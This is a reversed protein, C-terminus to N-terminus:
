ATPGIALWTVWVNKDGTTGNARAAHFAFGTALGGDTSIRYQIVKPVDSTGGVVAQATLFILPSNAFALPFTVIGEAGDVGNPITVKACGAQMQVGAPLYTTNGETVWNTGSGGQRAALMASAFRCLVRNDAVTIVGGTTVTVRALPVDWTIGETQVLAPIGAGENGPIRTVRVTQTSWVARLVIRDQRPNTVPTPITVDVVETSEYPFGYVLAAGTAVTVKGAGGTVALMGGYGALVGEATPDHSMSRRLWAILQDQSYPTTGDGQAGTTWFLSSETM